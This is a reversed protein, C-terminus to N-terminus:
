LSIMKELVMWDMRYLEKGEEGIDEEGRGM